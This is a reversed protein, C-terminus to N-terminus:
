SAAPTQRRPVQCPGSRLRRRLRRCWGFAAAAGALPLPGPVQQFMAQAILSHGKTTPHLSDWFFWEDPNCAPVLALDVVCRNSVDTLGYSAPQSHIQNFLAFTDFPMLDVQPNTAKLASLRTNLRANFGLVLQQILAAQLPDTNFSPALSLDHLNPVLIHSAGNNILTQIGVEINAVANDLLQVPTSNALPPGGTITGPTSGIGVGTQTKLWYLGDNAGMWVVFLTNEPQFPKPPTLFANLQQYASTQAFAPRVTDFTPNTDVTFQSDRGTTAGSVAYNTGGALSPKLPPAAPNYLSWLQEVAVPGNSVRGGAYPPPPFGFFPPITATLLGSNGADSLSDGFVVLTDLQTVKGLAPAQGCALGLSALLAVAAKGGRRNARHPKVARQGAASLTKPHWRRDLRCFGRLGEPYAM